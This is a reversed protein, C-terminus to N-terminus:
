ALKKACVFLFQYAFFTPFKRYLWYNLKKGIVPVLKIYHLIPVEPFDFEIKDIKLRCDKKIFERASKLTYLHLHGKDLIGSYTYDFKGYLLNFRIQWFAVNPLTILIIADKSLANIIEKLFKEPEKLHELIASALIVDFKGRKLIMQQIDKDELNGVIVDDLYMKATKAVKKNIEAGIVKCGLNEKLYGGIRGSGSGLDLVRSNRPIFATTLKDFASLNSREITKKIV